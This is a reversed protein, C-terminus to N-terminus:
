KELDLGWSAVAAAGARCSIVATTPVGHHQQQQRQESGPGVLSGGGYDPGWSVM